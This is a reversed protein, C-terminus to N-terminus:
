GAIVESVEAKAQELTMEGTEMKKAVAMIQQRLEPPLAALKAKAQCPKCEAAYANVRKRFASAEGAGRLFEDTHTGTSVEDQTGIKVFHDAWQAMEAFIRADKGQRTAIPITEQSHFRLSRSAKSICDCAKGMILGQAPLHETELHQLDDIIRDLQYELTQADSVSTQASPQSAPNSTAIPSATALPQAPMQALMETIVTRRAELKSVEPDLRPPQLVIMRVVDLGLGALAAQMRPSLGM